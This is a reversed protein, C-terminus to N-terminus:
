GCAVGMQLLLKKIHTQSPKALIRPLAMNLYYLSGMERAGLIAPITEEAETEQEAGELQNGAARCTM